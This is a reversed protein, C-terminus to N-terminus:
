NKSGRRARWEADANPSAEIAHIYYHNAGTHNPNRKLVGELVAVIELTGEAPKGDATWLQWPRLNMMSEAFLTAADLDDPYRKVLESMATKYDLALKQRDAQADNSYRKTLAEIYAREHEPVQPALARAKQLNAFAEKFQPADAQLNYNSGLALAVGWYAMALQSDLEAARKFSRM